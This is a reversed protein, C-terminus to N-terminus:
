GGSGPAGAGLRRLLLLAAVSAVLAIGGAVGFLGSFSSAQLLYGGVTAGLLGSGEVALNRWSSLAGQRSEAVRELLVQDVLPNVAPLVFAQVMYFGIATVLGGALGLAWIAPPFLFMWLILMRRPGVRAASEGSAFVAAATLIQGVSLIVGIRDISLAHERQFYINFFPLALAGATWFVGVVLIILGLHPPIALRGLGRLWAPAPGGEGHHGLSVDPGVHSDGGEGVRGRARRLALPAVAAAVLTAGAGLLLAVRHAELRGGGLVPMLWASIAGAAATWGAGSGVLVATNWSFARARIGPGALRMIAPGMAVRFGAAGAGAVAAALYVPVPDEVLAGAALGACAVFAAGLYARLVGFRDVLIGAPILALVGGASLAAAAVGMVGEGHGLGQLYFNYLFAHFYLGAAFLTNALFFLLVGSWEGSRSRIGGGGPNQEETDPQVRYGNTTM